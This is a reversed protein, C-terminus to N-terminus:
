QTATRCHAQWRSHILRPQDPWLHPVARHMLASAIRFTSEPMTDPDAGHRSKPGSCLPRLLPIMAVFLPTWLRQRQPPLSLTHTIGLAQKWPPVGRVTATVDQLVCDLAARQAPPQAQAPHQPFYPNTQAVYYVVATLQAHLTRNYARLHTAFTDLLAVWPFILRPLFCFELLQTRLAPPAPARTRVHRLDALIQHAAEADSGQCFGDFEARLLRLVWSDERPRFVVDPAWDWRQVVSWHPTGRAADLFLRLYVLALQEMDVGLQSAQQWSPLDCFRQVVDLRPALAELTLPFPPTPV